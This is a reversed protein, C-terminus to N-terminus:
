GNTDLLHDCGKPHEPTAEQLRAAILDLKKFGLYKVYRWGRDESSFTLLKDDEILHEARSRRIKEEVFLSEPFFSIVSVLTAKSSEEEKIGKYLFYGMFGVQAGGAAIGIVVPNIGAVSYGALGGLISVPTGISVQEPYSAYRVAQRIQGESVAGETTVLDLIDGAEDQTVICYGNDDAGPLANLYVHDMKLYYDNMPLSSEWPPPIYPLTQVKFFPNDAFASLFLSLLLVITTKM